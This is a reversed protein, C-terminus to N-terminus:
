KKVRTQIYLLLLLGVSFIGILSFLSSSFFGVGDIIRFSQSGLRIELEHDGLPLILSQQHSPLSIAKSDVKLNEIPRSFTLSPPLPSRYRLTYTSGSFSLDHIDADLILKNALNQFNFLSAKEIRLNHNGSPIIMGENSYFPWRKQNLVPFQDGFDATLIFPADSQIMYGTKHAEIRVHSSLVHPLLDMDFPHVTYESYIGARGSPLTAYYLTTALETGTSIPSPIHTKRTDRRSIVNIDFMLRQPDTIYGKYVEYYEQYRSPSQTWSRSPDEIQLTFPFQDMLSIIDLINIGCEEIIEPHFLTEMATVIVEMDKEKEEIINFIESLFDIHLEKTIETRFNLFRQYTIQDKKWFHPSKPNFLDVPDMGERQQFEMRVDKNMPTFKAPDQAGLNTDYNLEALNIGDWDYDLTIRRLVSKAEERAAPNYLNILQRWHCLGDEGTATKERWGPYTEWFLPTVQPYEFWAYVAIGFRHCLDIFYEYDFTYNEYFHWAALYIIKIGCKKWRLVLKEWSTNQHLGPDFYFELSNKRKNFPIYLANKLYHPFFPYRSIGFPTYPDFQAGFFLVTGKRFSKIMALPVDRWADKMLFLSNESSFASILEPPNWQLTQAPISLEKTESILIKNEEFKIGLNEALHTQGDTLLIGGREVYDLIANLELMQLKKASPFPVVLLDINGMDLARIDEIKTSVPHFGFTEFVSQFSLQDNQERESNTETNIIVVKPIHLTKEEKHKQLSDRNTDLPPKGNEGEPRINLAELIYLSGTELEINKELVGIHREQSYEDKLIRGERNILIEHVYQNDLRIQMQNGESTVWHTETHLNCPFNRISIFEWGTKRMNKIVHKLHKMSVLPHFFFSAIGDRVSLMNKARQLILDPNPQNLHIYGLNEPVVKIGLEKLKVPYLFIQQSAPLEAVMVRDNFTDFYKAINKYVQQSASYHPTEWVLPYIGNKFCETLGTRIRQDVWDPSEHKIPTGTIDDWFEYDLGTIGRHQHTIGHLLITGGKLMADKLTNILDPNESLTTEYQSDPNKFFPILSIQFPIKNRHFYSVIKRLSSPDSEPNVDEIRVLARHNQTHSEQLIDHLLDAIIFFRADKSSFSFPSDAIYWLNKSQLVYPYSNMKKDNVTSYVKVRFPDDVKIINLCPDGKDFIKEKYSIKWEEFDRRVFTIGWRKPAAKLLNEIHLHIWIISTQTQCLDEVFIPSFYPKGEEFIIFVFDQDDFMGTRYDSIHRIIKNEVKFHDLLNFIYRSSRYAESQKQEGDYIITIEKPFLLPSLILFVFLLVFHKKM